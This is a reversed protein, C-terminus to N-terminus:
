KVDYVSENKWKGFLDSLAQYFALMAVLGAAKYDVGMALQGFFIAFTPAVFKLFNRSLRIFDERILKYEPSVIRRDM